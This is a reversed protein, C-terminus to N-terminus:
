EEEIDKGRPETIFFARNSETDKIQGEREFIATAPPLAFRGLVGIKSYIVYSIVRTEGAELKGFSWEMRRNKEDIRSPEDGGFRKYIKALPPLRDIINVKELYRKAHIVISVKLAFEGGKANVFSVKKRLVLNTKSFQKILVVIVVVLVIILLPFLWNTKVVIKLSEGPKIGQNWTYYIRAGNREVIDPEPSFSTFLRSFINKKILTESTAITNGQNSKEIIETNVVFGYNKESTVVLNKEPFKITGEIIAKKGGIEVEANLTYFGAMLKKFDEPELEVEFVEKKNPELSFKKELEFFASSFKVKMDEFKYNIKNYMYIDLSNIGPSIEEAGIEFVDKLDLIKFTLEEKQEAGGDGRIYYQITYYGRSKIEGIPSLKLQVEKTEKEKIQVTGKPYMEFGLLNYFQLNDTKGLNTIKLDFIAPEDLGIILVEDSSQKEVKLSLALVSPLILLTIVLFIFQKKM